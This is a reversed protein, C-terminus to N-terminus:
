AYFSVGIQDVNQVFTHKVSQKDWKIVLVRYEIVSHLESRTSVNRM